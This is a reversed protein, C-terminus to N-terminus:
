KQNASIVGLQKWFFLTVVLLIISIVLLVSQPFVYIADRGWEFFGGARIRIDYIDYAMFVLFICCGIGGLFRPFFCKKQFMFGFYAFVLLLGSLLSLIMSIQTSLGIDILWDFQLYTFFQRMENLFIYLSISGLVLYLSQIIIMKSDFLFNKLDV